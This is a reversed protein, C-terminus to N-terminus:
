IWRRVSRRYAFFADGFRAELAREEPAIQFRNMYLIFAPVLLLALVSGLFIGWALLLLAFGLYMPNRSIRYIGAVVLASVKEPELPNTTTGARQFSMVGSACIVIGALAVLAAIVHLGSLSFSLAPVFRGLLWMLLAAVLVVVVPPIRPNLPLAKSTLERM